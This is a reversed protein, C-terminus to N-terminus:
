PKQERVRIVIRSDSVHEENIDMSYCIEANLQDEKEELSIQETLLGIHLRGFPTEYYSESRKGPRFVMEACVSKRKTLVAEQPCLRIMNKVPMPFQEEEVDEYLLYHKGNRFYYQGVSVMEIADGGNGDNHLGGITIVVDKKGETGFGAM